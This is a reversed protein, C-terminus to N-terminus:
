GDRMREAYRRLIIKENPEILERVTDLWMELELERFKEKEHGQVGALWIAFLDALVSGQVARDRGHLLPAIMRSVELAETAQHIPDRKM